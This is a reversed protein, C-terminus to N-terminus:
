TLAFGCTSSVSKQHICEAEIKGTVEQVVRYKALIKPFHKRWNKADNLPKPKFVIAYIVDDLCLM